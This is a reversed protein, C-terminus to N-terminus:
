ILKGKVSINKITTPSTKITTCFEKYGLPYSHNLYRGGLIKISNINKSNLLENLSKAISHCEPGEPM